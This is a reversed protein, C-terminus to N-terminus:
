SARSAQRIKHAINIPTREANMLLQMDCGLQPEIATLTRNATDITNQKFYEVECYNSMPRYIVYVYMKM